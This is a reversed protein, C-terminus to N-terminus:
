LHKLDLWSWTVHLKFRPAIEGLPVPEFGMCYIRAHRQNCNLGPTVPFCALRPGNPLLPNKSDNAHMDKMACSQLHSNLHSTRRHQLTSARLKMERNQMNSMDNQTNTQQTM